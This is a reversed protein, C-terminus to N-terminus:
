NPNLLSYLIFLSVFEEFGGLVMQQNVHCM